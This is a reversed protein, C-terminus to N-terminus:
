RKTCNEDQIKKASFFSSYSLFIVFLGQCLSPLITDDVILSFPTIKPFAHIKGRRLSLTFHEKPRFKLM